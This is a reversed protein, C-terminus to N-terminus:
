YKLSKHTNKSGSNGACAESGNHGQIISNTVSQVTVWSNSMYQVILQLYAKSYPNIDIHM